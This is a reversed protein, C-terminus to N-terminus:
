GPSPTRGRRIVPLVYLGSSILSALVAALWLLASAGVQVPARFVWVQESRPGVLPHDADWHTWRPTKDVGRQVSIVRTGDPMSLRFLTGDDGAPERAHRRVHDPRLMALDVVQGAETAGGVVFRRLFPGEEVARGRDWRALELEPLFAPTLHDLPPNPLPVHVAPGFGAAALDIPRACGPLSTSWRPGLTWVRGYPALDDPGSLCGAFSTSVAIGHPLDPMHVRHAATGFVYDDPRLDARLRVEADHVGRPPSFAVPVATWAQWSLVGLGIVAPLVRSGRGERPATTAFLLAIAPVGALFARGHIQAFGYGRLDIVSLGAVGALTLLACWVGAVGPVRRGSARWGVVAVVVLLGLLPGAALPSRISEHHRYGEFFAEANSGLLPLVGAAGSGYEGEPDLHPAFRKAEPVNSLSWALIGALPLLVAMAVAWARRAERVTWPTLVIAAPLALGFFFDNCMGGILGVALLVRGRRREDGRLDLLGAMTIAAFFPTAAYNSAEHGHFVLIPSWGVMWGAAVAGIRSADRSAVWWTAVAGACVFLAAHLRLTTPTVDGAVAVILWRVWYSLPQHAHFAGESAPHVAQVLIEWPNLGFYFVVEEGALDRLGLGSCALIATPLLVALVDLRRNV